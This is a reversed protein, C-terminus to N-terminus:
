PSPWHSPPSVSLTPVPLEWSSSPSSPGPHIAKASCSATADAPRNLLQPCPRSHVPRTPQSRRPTICSTQPHQASRHCPTTSGRLHKNCAPRPGGDGLGLPPPSFHFPVLVIAGASRLFASPASAKARRRANCSAVPPYQTSGDDPMFCGSLTRLGIGSTPVVLHNEQQRVCVRKTTVISLSNSWGCMMLCARRPEPVQFLCYIKPNSGSTRAMWFSQCVHICDWRLLPANLVPRDRRLAARNGM